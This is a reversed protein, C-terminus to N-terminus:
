PASTARYRAEPSYRVCIHGGPPKADCMWTSLRSTGNMRFMVTRFCPVTCGRSPAWDFVMPKLYICETESSAPTPYESVLVKRSLVDLFLRCPRVQPTDQYTFVGGWRGWLNLHFVQPPLYQRAIMRKSPKNVVVSM